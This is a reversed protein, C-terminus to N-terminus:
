PAGLWTQIWAPTQESSPGLHLTCVRELGSAWCPKEAITSRDERSYGVRGHRWSDVVDAAVGSTASVPAGIHLLSVAPLEQSCGSPGALVRSTFSAVPQVALDSGWLIAGRAIGTRDGLRGRDLAGGAAIGVAVREGGGPAHAMSCLRWRDMERHPRFRAGPFNAGVTAVAPTYYVQDSPVRSTTAHAFM